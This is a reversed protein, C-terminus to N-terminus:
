DQLNADDDASNRRQIWLWLLAGSAIIALLGGMLMLGRSASAPILWGIAAIALGLALIQAYVQEIRTRERRLTWLGWAVSAAVVIWRVVSQSPDVTGGFALVGALALFLVGSLQRSPRM